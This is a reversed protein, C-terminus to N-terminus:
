GRAARWGAAKAEDESCFMREGSGTDIVTRDYDRTGPLHYIKDGKRSINGKIACAAQTPALPKEREPRTEVGSARKARRWDSPPDFTGAWLGRKLARATTEAEVYDRSYRQYATAYGQSVMWANLDEDGKRCVAVTRGYQDTDRPECSISAEGIRDALALAAVQGCRYSKGAVDQCLQASEPADIGHLRIRTGRIVVTDGDTVSARGVIPEAALAPGTLLLLAAVATRMKSRYRM